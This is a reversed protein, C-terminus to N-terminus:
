RLGGAEAEWTSHNFVHVAHSVINKKNQNPKKPPPPPPPLPILIPNRQTARATRSRARCFLSAEFECLDAQRQRGLTTILPM